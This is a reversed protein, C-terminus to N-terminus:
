QPKNLSQLTKVRAGKVLKNGRVPQRCFAQQKRSEQDAKIKAKVEAALAERYAKDKKFEDLNKQREAAAKMRLAEEKRKECDLDEVKTAEVWEEEKPRIHRHDLIISIIPLLCEDDNNYVLVNHINLWGCTLMFERALPISWVRKNFKMNSTKLKRYQIDDEHQFINRHIELLTETTDRVSKSDMTESLKALLSILKETDIDPDQDEEM